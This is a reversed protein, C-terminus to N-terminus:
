GCVAALDADLVVKQERLTLIRINPAKDTM